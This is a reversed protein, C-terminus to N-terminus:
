DATGRKTGKESSAISKVMNQGIRMIKEYWPAIEWCGWQRWNANEMLGPDDKHRVSQKETWGVNPLYVLLTNTIAGPKGDIWGICPDRPNMPDAYWFIPDGTMCKPPIFDSAM